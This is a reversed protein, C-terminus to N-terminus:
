PDIIGWTHPSTLGVGQNKKQEKAPLFLDDEVKVPRLGVQKNMFKYYAARYLSFMKDHPLPKAKTNVTCPRIIQVRLHGSRNVLTLVGAEERLSEPLGNKEYLAHPVAYWFEKIYKARDQVNRATKFKDKLHDNRWDGIDCKVEYERVYGGPTVAYLDAEWQFLQSNFACFNRGWDLYIALAKQIRRETDTPESFLLAPATGPQIFTIM